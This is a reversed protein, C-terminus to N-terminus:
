FGNSIKKPRCCSFCVGSGLREWIFCRSLFDVALHTCLIFFYRIFADFGEVYLIPSFTNMRKGEHLDLIGLRVYIKCPVTKSLLSFCM